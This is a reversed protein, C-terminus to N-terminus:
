YSLKLGLKKCFEYVAVSFSVTETSGLMKEM